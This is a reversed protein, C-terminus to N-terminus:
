DIANLYHPGRLFDRYARIYMEAWEYRQCVLQYATARILKRMHSFVTQEPSYIAAIIAENRKIYYELEASFKLHFPEHWVGVGNLLIIGSCARLAYEVDDGKIFLPLALGHEAVFKVPMCMYWWASYPPNDMKENDILASIKRLDSDNNYPSVKWGAWMAGFEHQHYPRDLRLMGGGLSYDAYEEKVCSLFAITKQLTEPFFVIDDDMLLMHTYGETTSRQYVEYMGRSFGGSGGLNPNHILTVIDNEVVSKDLTGGNDVVFVHLNDKLLPDTDAYACIKKLNSLVYQERRFTCIVVGTRITRLADEEREYCGSLLKAEGKATLSFTLYGIEYCDSLNVKLIGKKNNLHGMALKKRKGYTVSEVLIDFEGQLELRITVVNMGTYNKYKAASFCNFFTEFSVIAGDKFQLSSQFYAAEGKIVKYFLSPETCIGERPMLLDFLKM